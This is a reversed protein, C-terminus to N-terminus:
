FNHFQFFRSKLFKKQFLSFYKKSNGTQFFTKSITIKEIGYFNRWLKDSKKSMFISIKLM